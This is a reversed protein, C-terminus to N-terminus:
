HLPVGLEDSEILMGLVDDHGELLGVANLAFEV